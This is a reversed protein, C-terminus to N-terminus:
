KGLSEGVMEAVGSAVCQIDHLQELFGLSSLIGM